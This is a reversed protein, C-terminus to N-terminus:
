LVGIKLMIGVNYDILIESMKFM